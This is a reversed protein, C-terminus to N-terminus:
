YLYSLYITKQLVLRNIWIGCFILSLVSIHQLLTKMALHIHLHFQEGVVILAIVDSQNQFDNQDILNQIAPSNFRKEDFSYDDFDELTFSFSM